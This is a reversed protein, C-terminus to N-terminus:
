FTPVAAVLIDCPVCGNVKAVGVSVLGVDVCSPHWVQPRTPHSGQTEPVTPLRM